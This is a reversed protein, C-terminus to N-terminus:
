SACESGETPHMEVGGYSACESGGYSACEPGRRLICKSGETPHVKQNGFGESSKSLIRGFKKPCEHGKTRFPSMYPISSPTGRESCSESSLIGKIIASVLWCDALFSTHNPRLNVYIKHLVGLPNGKIEGLCPMLQPARTITYAPEQVAPKFICEERNSIM